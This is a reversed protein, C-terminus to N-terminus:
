EPRNVGSDKKSDSESTFAVSYTFVKHKIELMLIQNLTLLLKKM